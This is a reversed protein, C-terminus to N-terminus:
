TAIFLLRVSFYFPYMVSFVHGFDAFFLQSVSADSNLIAKLLDSYLPWLPGQMNETYNM